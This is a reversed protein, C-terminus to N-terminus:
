SFDVASMLNYVKTTYLKHTKIFTYYYLYLLM